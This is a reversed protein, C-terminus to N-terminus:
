FTLPNFLNFPNFPAQINFKAIQSKFVQVDFYNKKAKGAKVLSSQAQCAPLRQLMPANFRTQKKMDASDNSTPTLV